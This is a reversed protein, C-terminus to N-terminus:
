LSDKIMKLQDIQKELEKKAFSSGQNIGEKDVSQTEDTKLVENILIIFICTVIFSTMIDRTAMFVSCFIVIKRFESSQAISRHEDSLEEIIFRAGINVMIMMLGIFIKNESLQDCKDKLFKLANM